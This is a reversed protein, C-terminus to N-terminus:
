ESLISLSEFYDLLKANIEKKDIYFWFVRQACEKCRHHFPHLFNYIGDMDKHVVLHTSIPPHPLHVGGCAHSSKLIIRLEHVFEPKFEWPVGWPDIPSYNM